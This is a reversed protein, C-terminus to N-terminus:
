AWRRYLGIVFRLERRATPDSRKQWLDNIQRALLATYNGRSFLSAQDSM